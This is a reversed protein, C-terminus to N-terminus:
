KMATVIDDVMHDIIDSIRNREISSINEIFSEENRNSVIYSRTPTESGELSALVWGHEEAMKSLDNAFVDTVNEITPNTIDFPEIDNLITNQYKNMYSDIMKEVVSFEVFSDGSMMIVFVFEWTHPHVMGPRGEITIYHNMNLYAKLRYERYLKSRNM